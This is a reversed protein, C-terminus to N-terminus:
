GKMAKNWAEKHEEATMGPKVIPEEGQQGQNSSNSGRLKAKEKKEQEKLDKQFSIFLPDKLSEMLTLGKGKSIVQLQEIETDSLGRAILRLEDPDAVQANIQKSKEDAKPAAAKLRKVEAEAKKTREFLRKNSEKLKAPDETETDAVTEEVDTTKEVEETTTELTDKEDADEAM